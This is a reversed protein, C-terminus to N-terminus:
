GGFRRQMERDIDAWSMTRLPSGEARLQVHPWDKFSNWHGGANLGLDEAVDAYVHYGNIGNIKKLASWEADGDVLWFCDMGEGWQHWSAGPKANTVHKGLQPGVDEVTQAIFPAGDDRLKAISRQIAETPRSQRWLEAQRRPTRLTNYPRMVVGRQECTRLLQDVQQRLQPVLDDLSRSM